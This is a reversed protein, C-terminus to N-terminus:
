KPARCRTPLAPAIPAACDSSRVCPRRSRGGDQRRHAACVADHDDFVAGDGVDARVFLQHLLNPVYRRKYSNCNALASKCGLRHCFRSCGAWIGVRDIGMRDMVPKAWTRPSTCSAAVLAAAELPLTANESDSFDTLWRKRSRCKRRGEPVSESSICSRRRSFSFIARPCTSIESLRSRDELSVNERFRSSTPPYMAAKRAAAASNERAAMSRIEVGDQANGAREIGGAVCCGLFLNFRCNHCFTPSARSRRFWIRSSSPRPMARSSRSRM